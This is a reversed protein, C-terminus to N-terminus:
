HGQPLQTTGLLIYYPYPDVLDKIAALAYSSFDEQKLVGWVENEGALM